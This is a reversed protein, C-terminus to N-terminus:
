AVSKKSQLADMYFVLHATPRAQLYCDSLIPCTGGGLFAFGMGLQSSTEDVALAYVPGSPRPPHLCARCAVQPLKLHIYTGHIYIGDCGKSLQQAM